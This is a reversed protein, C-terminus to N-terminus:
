PEAGPIPWPMRELLEVVGDYGCAEPAVMGHRLPGGWSGVRARDDANGAPDLGLLAARLRDVTEAPLTATNVVLTFGPFPRSEALVVLDLHAYRVAIESKVGAVDYDGRVVGLAAASHSGAYVFRNGDGDLSVGAQDFMQSVGLYGCTSYPQTLGVRVGRLGDPLGDPSLGSDGYAVLSCTYSTEGSVDRFCVLPAVDAYDRRLIAYPLPGLFALDVEGRQLGALIEAYDGVDLLEVRRGSAEGLFDAFGRFQEHIIKRDELPLPAFRLAEAFAPSVCCTLLVILSWRSPARRLRAHRFRFSM